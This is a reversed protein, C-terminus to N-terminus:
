ALNLRRLIQQFGAADRLPDLRPDLLLGMFGASRTELADNLAGLARENDGLGIWAYVFSAPSVYERTASDALDDFLKQSLAMRGAAANALVLTGRVQSRQSDGGDEMAAIADDYRGMQLLIMGQFYLTYPVDPGLEFAREVSALASEYQNAYYYLLAMSRHVRVSLPDLELARRLTERAGTLNGRQVEIFAAQTHASISSPRLDIGLRILRQGEEWQWELLSTLNGLSVYAEACCEDLQIARLAMRRSLAMLETPPRREFYTLSNYADALGAYPKAFDPDLAIARTFYGVADRNSEVTNNNWAHRGRLYLDYVDASPAKGHTRMGESLQVRLFGVVAESIQDEVAFLSGLDCDFTGGWVWAQTLIDAIRASIRVQTGAIRVSGHVVTGVGLSRAVRTLDPEAEQFRFASTQATVRLGPLGALRDIIAETIGLSLYDQEPAGSLNVFPLVAVYRPDPPADVIPADTVQAASPTDDHRSFAPVYSGPAFSIVVPDGAGETEYYEALRRRLRQAETRVISDIRPDFDAKRDFVERAIVYQKLPESNSALTQEVTWRIFRCLRESGAFGRSGVIRELQARIESEALGPSEGAAIGPSFSMDRGSSV